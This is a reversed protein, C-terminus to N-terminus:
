TKDAEVTTVPSPSDRVAFGEVIWAILLGLGFVPLAIVAGILLPGTPDSGSFSTVLTVVGVLILWGWSGM